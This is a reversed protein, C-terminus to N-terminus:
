PIAREQITYAWDEITRTTTNFSVGIKVLKRRSLANFLLHEMKLKSVLRGYYTKSRARRAPSEVNIEALSDNIGTLAAHKRVSDRKLASKARRLPIAM